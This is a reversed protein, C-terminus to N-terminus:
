KGINEESGIRAVEDERVIGTKALEQPLYSEIYCHDFCYSLIISHYVKVKM